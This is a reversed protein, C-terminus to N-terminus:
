YHATSSPINYFVGWLALQLDPIETSFMQSGQGWFPTLCIQPCLASSLTLTSLSTSLHSFDSCAQLALQSSSGVSTLPFLLLRQCSPREPSWRKLSQMLNEDSAIQPFITSDGWTLHWQSLISSLHLGIHYEFAANPFDKLEEKHKIPIGDLPLLQKLISQIRCAKM